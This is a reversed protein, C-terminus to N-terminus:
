ENQPNDLSEPPYFRFHQFGAARKRRVGDEIEQLSRGNVNAMVRAGDRVKGGFFAYVPMGVRKGMIDWLAGDIASM